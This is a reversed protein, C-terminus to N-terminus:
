IEIITGDELYFIVARGIKVGKTKSIGITYLELQAAYKKRLLEDIDGRSIGTKYDILTWRGDVNKFLLDVVGEVITGSHNFSFPIERFIEVANKIDKFLPSSIINRSYKKLNNNDPVNKIDFDWTKLFSHTEIGKQLTAYRKFIDKESDSPLSNKYFLNTIESVSLMYKTFNDFTLPSVQTLIDSCNIGNSFNNTTEKEINLPKIDPVIHTINVLSPEQVTNLWKGWGNKAEDFKGSFVLYDKARTAAVYLLRKSEALEKKEIESKVAKYQATDYNEGDADKVKVGLGFFDKDFLALGMLPKQKRSIDPVFVIPFELGKAKHITMIRVVDSEEESLPAEGERIENTLFDDVHEVFDKLTFVGKSDFQRAAAILKNINCIKQRGEPRTSLIAKYCTKEIINEIVSSIPAIDRIMKINEYVKLFSSLKTADESNGNAADNVSQLYDNDSKKLLYLTNDTIGVMPSRLVGTLSIYDKEDMLVRVFNVIDTIEQKAFFGTGSVVYFPINYSRFVDEYIKIDTMARFLIAIDKFRPTRADPISNSGKDYVLKEGSIMSVIRKAISVAEKVRTEEATEKEDASTIIDIYEVATSSDDLSRGPRIEKYESEYDKKLVRGSGMVFEFLKNLYEIIRPTSRMNTDLNYIDGCKGFIKKTNEFVSVDAGRFRYISQKSDGVIFLKNKSLVIDEPNDSLAINGDESLYYIIEKQHSDTDQYEDVLIYKIYYQYRKRVDKNNKLLSKAYYILDDFDIFRNNAKTNKYKDSIHKYASFISRTVSLGKRDMENLEVSISKWFNLIYLSDCNLYKSVIDDLDIRKNFLTKIIGKTDRFGFESILLATDKDDSNLLSVLGEHITKWLLTVAEAGDLIDSVPDLGLEISNERVIRACLSHITGIRSNELNARHKEWSPDSSAKEECVKRIRDKMEKAAKETFTIAAIEPVEAKDQALLEIYRQVLVTTKGTGAGASVFVNRDISKIINDQTNM